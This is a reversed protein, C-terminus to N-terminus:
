TLDDDNQIVYYGRLMTTEIVEDIRDHRVQEQAAIQSVFKEIEGPPLAVFGVSLIEQPDDARTANIVRTPIGFGKDPYWAVRFDQYTKGEKLRRVFISVLTYTPNM